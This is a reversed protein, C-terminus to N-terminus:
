YAVIRYIRSAASTPDTVTELTDNGGFRSGLNLWNPDTAANKVQLQYAHRSETPLTIAFNTGTGDLGASLAFTPNLWLNNATATTVASSLTPGTGNIIHTMESGTQATILVNIMDHVNVQQSSTPTEITNFCKVNATNFVGYVGLGYAQHSTVGSAVKYSAYGNVGNHTWASQNPADYPLESQYFYVRGWNGNWLTQYQEHHENFLGYITVNNGNVVLGNNSANQTWGVGTGHDARWLWLNDGIVNNANITLCTTTTGAFQGGVRSYVDYLCIPDASHDVSNTATGVELLSPSATTGADFIIDSVKVGNVDSIVMAPNGNTPVLTPFGLGFVITDPNTVLISNTLHYIGPTLILNLGSNLAANISGANDTGPQAIYFQSIPVSVGPTPGGAWSTGASNTTLNPVLVFFNTNSDVWLYPKQRILPVNTIVTYSPYPGPWTQPPPSSDGLFVFNWNGGSWGAYSNNRSLWQQQGIPNVSGDIRSDALFGGSAWNQSGSWECLYLNNQVHMRRFSTGQSVAWMTYGNTSSVALNEASLWFNCTANGNPLFAHCDLSGNIKVNDPSPGLGLVQMYYGLNISVNYTGPEFLVAYRNADFQSTNGSNQQAFLTNLTNQITATPTSPTFLFVNPGFSPGAPNPVATNTSVFALQLGNFDGEINGVHSVNANSTWTFTITGLTGVVINSFVVYDAGQIFSTLSAPTNSTTLTVPGMVPTYVTFTTGRTGDNNIGYLFLNYTGAPVNNLTDTRLAANNYQYPQQLAAPTGQTGQTGYTGGMQSTLTILSATVGDSLLNTAGTTGNGVVPNWYNKGPDPCAGQGAYNAAGAGGPVDFNIVQAWTASGSLGLCLASLILIRSTTNM